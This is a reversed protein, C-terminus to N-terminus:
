TSPGDYRTTITRVEFCAGYLYTRLLIVAWVIVLFEHETTNYNREAESFTRSYYGIPKLSKDEHRQILVSGLQKDWADTYLM